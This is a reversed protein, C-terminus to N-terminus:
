NCCSIESQECPNYSNIFLSKQQKWSTSGCKIELTM